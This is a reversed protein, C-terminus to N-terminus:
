RVNETIVPINTVNNNRIRIVIANHEIKIIINVIIFAKKAKNLTVINTLMNKLYIM